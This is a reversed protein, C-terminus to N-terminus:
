ELDYLEDGLSISGVAEEYSATNFRKSWISVHGDVWGITALNNHRFHVKGAMFLPDSPARLYNNARVPKGFGADAFLVTQSPSNIVSLNVPEVGGWFDGGIYTANLAYGTYLRSWSEGVYSPCQAVLGSKSYPYLLGPQNGGSFDWAIEGALFDSPYYSPVSQDDYDDAYLQWSLGLQRIQSTCQTRLAATRGHAFAPFLIAALVTIIALVVLLEILTFARGVKKM